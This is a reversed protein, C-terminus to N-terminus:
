EVESLNEKKGPRAKLRRAPLLDTLSTALNNVESINEKKESRTKTQKMIKWFPMSRNFVVGAVRAGIMQFKRLAYQASDAHTHRARITLLVADMKSALIQADAGGAPPSDVIILDTDPEQCDALIEVLKDTDLWGISDKAPNGSPILSLGKVSKVAHLASKIDMDSHLLEAFGNKNEIGFLEHLHPHNLDGDILVVKKGQQANTVALDAATRTRSRASEMNVILLTHFSKGAGTIELNAGLTRFADAEVSHPNLLTVLKNKNQVYDFVTGLVPIGLTEEIQGASKFSDDLNEMMLIATASLALGVGAGLFIYLIPLPRVPNKPPAAAVIQTVNQTSQSRALRVNERNNILTINIQQYINLTSQLTTLKDNELASGTQVPKGTYTLNTQIQQYLTMLSHLQDLQAQKEAIAIVELPLPTKSFGAIEKELQTTKTNIQEIQKNVQAIQEQIDADKIQGIQSQLDSILTQTQDLQENIATEFSTYRGSLLSENQQILTQVLLNAIASARQPDNEQVKIQIMLTNPITEVQINDADIKSGLQTSVDNLVAQSKAMQLNIAMLQEDSLSLMDSNSQQRTRSVFIKTTAEYVPTQITSVMSGILAGLILALIIYVINRWMLMVLDKIQM